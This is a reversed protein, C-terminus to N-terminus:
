QKQKRLLDNNLLGIRDAQRVLELQLMTQNGASAIIGFVIDFLMADILAVNSISLVAFIGIYALLNAGPVPPTAVFLIVALVMAIGFWLPTVTVNFKVAAYVTFILTGIVNIPMYLVLGQPLSVFVFYRELGLDNICSRETKPLTADLSGAKIASLFPGWLKRILIHVAVHNKISVWITVVLMCLLAAIVSLLLVKWLGVLSMFRGNVIMKCIALIVVYPVIRSIWEALQMGVMNLQQIINVLSSVKAGVAIIATGAVFALVLIQPTNASIIPTFLDPPIITFFQDILTVAESSGIMEAQLHPLFMLQAVTLAIVAVLFSFGFYRIIIRKSDGGQETVAGMNLLTSIVMFFIVYGSLSTLIRSWADFIPDLFVNDLFFCQKQTLSTKIIAGLLIGASIAMLIKLVPNLRQIPLNIRLVNVGRSYSYQPALGISTLISGTWDSLGGQSKRLPNYLDGEHELKIIRKHYKNRISFRVEAEEGFRDQLRLLAEELSLRIRVRDQREIGYSALQEELEESFLDINLNKLSFEKEYNKQKRSM